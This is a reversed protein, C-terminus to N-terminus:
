HKKICEMGQDVATRSRKKQNHIQSIMDYTEETSFNDANQPEITQTLTM